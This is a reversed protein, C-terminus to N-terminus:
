TTRRTRLVYLVLAAILLFPLLSLAISGIVPFTQTEEQFKLAVPASPNAANYDVVAKTLVTDPQPVTTQERSGDRLELTATPGAITVTRVRGANVDQIAQTLSLQVVAPSQSRYAYLLGIGMVVLLLVLAGARLASTGGPRVSSSGAAVAVEGSERFGGCRCAAGGVERYCPREVDPESRTHGRVADRDHWLRTHGCVECIARPELM